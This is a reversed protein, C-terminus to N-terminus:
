SICMAQCLIFMNQAVANYMTAKNKKKQKKVLALM